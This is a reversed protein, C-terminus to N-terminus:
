HKKERQRNQPGLNKVQATANASRRSLPECLASFIVLLSEDQCHLTEIRCAIIITRHPQHTLLDFSSHWKTLRACDVGRSWYHRLSHKSKVFDPCYTCHRLARKELQVKITKTEERQSLTVLKNSQQSLRRHCSKSLLRAFKLM